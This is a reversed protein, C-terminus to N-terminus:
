LVLAYACVWCFPAKSHSNTQHIKSSAMTKVGISEVLLVKEKEKYIYSTHNNM